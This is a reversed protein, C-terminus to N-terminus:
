RYMLSGGHLAQRLEQAVKRRKAVTVFRGVEIKVGKAELNILDCANKPLAIRTWHPDLRTQQVQGAEIREILLFGDVLAIHEHDTAHRAYYLFALAVASMEMVSFVLVVWAGQLTFMTAVSFSLICLVAYAKALQRPTLSCNRKLLWDHQHRRDELQRCDEHPSSLAMTNM